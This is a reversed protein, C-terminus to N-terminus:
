SEMNPFAIFDLTITVPIEKTFIELYITDRNDDFLVKPQCPIKAIRRVINSEARYQNQKYLHCTGNVERCNYCTTSEIVDSDASIDQGECDLYIRKVQLQAAICPSSETVWDGLVRTGKPIILQGEIRVDYMVYLSDNILTKGPRIYLPFSNKKTLYIRTGAPIKKIVM